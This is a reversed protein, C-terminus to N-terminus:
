IGNAAVLFFSFSIDADGFMYRLFQDESHTQLVQSNRILEDFKVVVSIRPDNEMDPIM